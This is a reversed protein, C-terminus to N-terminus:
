RRPHAFTKANARKDAYMKMKQKTMADKQRVEPNEESSLSFHLIKGRM